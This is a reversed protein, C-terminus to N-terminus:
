EHERLLKYLLSRCIGLEKAADVKSIDKERIMKLYLDFNEPVPLRKRGTYKGADKAKRIGRMQREKNAKDEFVALKPMFVFETKGSDTWSQFDEDLSVFYAEKSKVKQINKYLSSISDGVVAFEAVYVCDGKKLESIMKRFEESEGVSVDNPEIYYRQIEYGSLKAKQQEISNKSVNRIYAINDM